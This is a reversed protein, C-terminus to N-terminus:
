SFSNEWFDWILQYRIHSHLSNFRQICLIIIKLYSCMWFEPIWTTFHIMWIFQRVSWRIRSINSIWRIWITLLILRTYIHSVIYFLKNSYIFCPKLSFHINKKYLQVEVKWVIKFCEYSKLNKEPQHYDHDCHKCEIHNALNILILMNTNIM